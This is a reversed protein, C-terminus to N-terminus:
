PAITDVLTNGARDEYRRGGSGGPSTFLYDVGAFADPNNFEFTLARRSLNGDVIDVRSPQFTSVGGPVSEYGFWDNSFDSGAWLKETFNVTVVQGSRSTRGAGGVLQPLARDLQVTLSAIPGRGAANQLQLGRVFTGDTNGIPVIVTETSGGVPYSALTEGRGDLVHLTYGAAAGGFTVELDSGPFRTWYAGEDFVATESGTNREVDENAFTPLGPLIGVITSVTRQLAENLAGDAIPALKGGRPDRVTPLYTVNPATDRTPLGPSITLIRYNDDPTAPDSDCYGGGVATVVQGDVRWNAANCGGSITRNENFFVEITTTSLTRGPDALQPVINDLTTPPLSTASGPNGDTFDIAQVFAAVQGQPAAFNITASGTCTRPTGSCSIGTIPVAGGQAARVETVQYTAGADDITWTVDVEDGNKVSDQGTPVVLTLNSIIPGLNDIVVALAAGGVTPGFAADNDDLGSCTLTVPHSGDAGTIAKPQFTLTQNGNNPGYTVPAALTTTNGAFSFTCANVRLGPIGTKMATVNFTYQIGQNSRVRTPSLTNAVAGLTPAPQLTIMTNLNGADAGAATADAVYTDTRQASVTDLTLPVSLVRTANSAVGTANSSAGVGGKTLSATVTVAQLAHNRVGVGYTISQGSTATGDSVGNPATPAASVIELIRVTTILAGTVRTTTAGANDSAFVNFEGARDSNAPAAVVAPFTFQLSAGGAIGAGSARYVYRQNQALNTREVTWGSPAAANDATRVGAAHPLVISVYNVPTGILPMNSNTVQIRFDRTGPFVNQGAQLTASGTVAASAVAPLLSVGVIAIIAVALIKRLM